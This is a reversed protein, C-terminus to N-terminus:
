EISRSTPDATLHSAAECNSVFIGSLAALRRPVSIQRVPRAPRRIMHPKEGALRREKWRLLGRRITEPDVELADCVAGFSFAGDDGDSFIWVQAEASEQRGAAQRAQFRTEYCRVADVLMAAMLRRWPETASAGRRAGYFQTPLVGQLELFEDELPQKQNVISLVNGM